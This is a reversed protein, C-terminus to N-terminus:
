NHFSAEILSLSESTLVYLVTTNRYKLSLPVQLYRIVPCVVTQMYQSYQTVLNSEHASGDDPFFVLSL